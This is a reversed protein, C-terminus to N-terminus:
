SRGYGNLVVRFERMRRRALVGRQRTTVTAVDTVLPAVIGNLWPQGPVTLADVTVLRLEVRGASGEAYDTVGRFAQALLVRRDFCERSSKSAEVGFIVMRLM